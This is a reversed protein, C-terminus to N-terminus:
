KFLSSRGTSDQNIDPVAIGAHQGIISNTFTAHHVKFDNLTEQPSNKIQTTLESNDLKGPLAFRKSTNWPELVRGFKVGEISHIKMLEINRTKNM